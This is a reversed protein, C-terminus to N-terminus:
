MGQFVWSLRVGSLAQSSFTFCFVFSSAMFVDKKRFSQMGKFVRWERPTQCNGFSPYTDLFITSVNSVGLHQFPRLSLAAEVPWLPEVVTQMVPVDLTTNHKVYEPHM